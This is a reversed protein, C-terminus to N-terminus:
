VEYTNKVLDIHYRAKMYKFFIRENHYTAISFPKHSKLIIIKQESRINRVDVLQNKFEFISYSWDYLDHDTKLPTDEKGIEEIIKFYKALAEKYTRFKIETIEFGEFTEIHSVRGYQYGFKNVLLLASFVIFLIVLTFYM